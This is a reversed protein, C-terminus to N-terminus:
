LMHLDKLMFYMTGAGVIHILPWSLACFNVCNYASIAFLVLCLVNFMITIRGLRPFVTLFLVAYAIFVNTELKFDTKKSSDVSSPNFFIYRLINCLVIAQVVIAIMLMQNRNRNNNELAFYTITMIVIVQM